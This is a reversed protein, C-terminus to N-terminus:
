ARPAARRHSPRLTSHRWWRQLERLRQRWLPGPRTRQAHRGRDRPAAGDGSGVGLHEALRGTGDDQRPRVGGGNWPGPGDNADRAPWGGSHRGRRQPRQRRAGARLWAVGAGMLGRRGPSRLARRVGARRAARGRAASRRRPAHQPRDRPPQVGRDAARRVGCRGLRCGGWRDSRWRLARHPGRDRPRAAVPVRPARRADRRVREGARAPRRTAGRPGRPEALRLVSDRARHARLGRHGRGRLRPRRRRPPAPHTPVHPDGPRHTRWTYAGGACGRHVVKTVGPGM